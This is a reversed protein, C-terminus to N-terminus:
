RFGGDGDNLEEEDEEYFESYFEEINDVDIPYIRHMSHVDISKSRTPM